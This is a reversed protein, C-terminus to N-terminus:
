SKWAIGRPWFHDRFTYLRCNAHIPDSVTVIRSNCAEMSEGHKWQFRDMSEIFIRSFLRILYDPWYSHNSLYSVTHIVHAFPDKLRSSSSEQIPHISLHLSTWIKRWKNTKCSFYVSCNFIALNWIDPNFGLHSHIISLSESSLGFHEM